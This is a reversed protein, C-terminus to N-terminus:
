LGEQPKPRGCPLWPRHPFAPRGTAPGRKQLARGQCRRTEARSRALPLFCVAARVRQSSGWARSGAGGHWPPEVLAPTVRRPPSGAPGAGWATSGLSAGALGLGQALALLPHRPCPGPCARAQSSPPSLPVM